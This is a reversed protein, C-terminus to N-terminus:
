ASLLVIPISLAVIFVGNFIMAQHMNLPPSATPPARLAGDVLVFIIGSLNGSICREVFNTLVQFTSPNLYVCSFWLLASSGASNRTIECALELGVPLVPLSWALSPWSWLFVEPM